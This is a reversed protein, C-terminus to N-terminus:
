QREKRYKMIKEEMIKCALKDQYYDNWNDIHRNNLIFSIKRQILVNRDINSIFEEKLLTLMDSMAEIHKYYYKNSVNVEWIQDLYLTILEPPYQLDNMIQFIAETIVSKNLEVKSNDNYYLIFVIGSGDNLFILFVDEKNQIQIVQWSFIDYGHIENTIKNYKGLTKFAEEICYFIM